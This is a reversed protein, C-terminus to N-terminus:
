IYLLLMIQHLLSSNTIDIAGYLKMALIAYANVIAGTGIGLFTSVYTGM